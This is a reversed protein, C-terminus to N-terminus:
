DMINALLIEWEEKSNVAFRKWNNNIKLDAFLLNKDIHFHLFASAKKYFVGTKKEKLYNKKRIKDIFDNYIELDKENAHKM